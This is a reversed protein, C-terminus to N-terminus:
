RKPPPTRRRLGFLSCLMTLLGLVGVGIFVKRWPFPLPPLFARMDDLNGPAIILLPLGDPRIFPVIENETRTGLVTFVRDDGISIGEYSFRLDGPQNDFGAHYRIYIYRDDCHSADATCLDGRGKISEWGYLDADPMGRILFRGVVPNQVRFNDSQVAPKRYEHGPWVKLERWPVPKTTWKLEHKFRDKFACDPSPWQSPDLETEHWAYCEVKRKLALHHFNAMMAPDAIPTIAQMVGTVAVPTNTETDPPFITDTIPIAADLVVAPQNFDPATRWAGSLGILCLAVGFIFLILTPMRNQVPRDSNQTHSTM